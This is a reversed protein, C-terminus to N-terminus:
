EDRLVASDYNDKSFGSIRELRNVFQSPSLGKREAEVAYHDTISDRATLIAYINEEVFILYM